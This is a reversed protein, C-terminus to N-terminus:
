SSARPFVPSWPGPRTLSASTVPVPRMSRPAAVQTLPQGTILFEWRGFVGGVHLAELSGAGISVKVLLHTGPVIEKGNLQERVALGCQAAQLTVM